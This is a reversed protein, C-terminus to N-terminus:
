PVQGPEPLTDVDKRALYEEVTDDRVAQFLERTGARDVLVVSQGAIRDLGRVPVTLYTVDDSRMGRLSFALERMAGSTFDADVAVNDVVADLVGSLKGPNTLTGTSIAERSLARLVNQQRQVRDLDGRPLSYRERVYELAEQGDLEVASAPGAGDGSGDESAPGAELRVGGLADTMDKFGNWDVIAMHDMRLGTFQELTRVFLPPGGFSLAANIKAEGWGDITVWTDRPISIVYADERDADVHLVMIADARHWGAEWEGDALEEVIRSSEGADVGALLINTGADEDYSPRESEVLGPGQAPPQDLDFRSIDNIQDNLYFAWGAVAVLLLGALGALILLTTRARM